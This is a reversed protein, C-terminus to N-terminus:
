KGQYYLCTTSFAKTIRQIALSGGKCVTAMILPLNSISLENRRPESSITAAM